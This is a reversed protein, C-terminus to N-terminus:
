IDGISRRIWGFFFKRNAPRIKVLHVYRAIKAITFLALFLEPNFRNIANLTIPGIIGDPTVELVRQAISVGTRVGSNVCFDFISQAVLQNQILDGKMKDWFETKYFQRVEDPLHIDSKLSDPFDSQQKHRDITNWGIWGPHINRAIGKYTEGGLDDPDNVYDGEHILTKNFADEFNAM